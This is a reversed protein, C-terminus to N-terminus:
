PPAVTGVWGSETWKVEALAPGWAEWSTVYFNGMEEDQEIRYGADKAENMLKVLREMVDISDM